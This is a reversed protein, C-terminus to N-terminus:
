LDPYKHKKCARWRTRPITQISSLTVDLLEIPPRHMKTLQIIDINEQTTQKHFNLDVSVLSVGFEELVGSIITIVGLRGM